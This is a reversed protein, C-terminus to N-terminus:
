TTSETTLNFIKTHNSDFYSVGFIAKQETYLNTRKGDVDRRISFVM